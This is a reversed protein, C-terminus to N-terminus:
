ASYRLLPVRINYRDINPLEEPAFETMAALDVVYTRYPQDLMYVTHAASHDWGSQMVKTALTTTTNSVILSRGPVADNGGRSIDQVYLLRGSWRNVTFTKTTAVVSTTTSAADPVFPDGAVTENGQQGDTYVRFRKGQNAEYWWCELGRNRSYPYSAAETYGIGASWMKNRTVHQLGISNKYRRAVRQTRVRGSDAISQLSTVIASDEVELEKLWGDESAYWGYAHEYDSTFNYGDALPSTDDASSDFGLVAAVSAGDLETWALKMPGPNDYTPKIVTKHDETLYMQASGTISLASVVETDMLDALVKLFDDAQADWAMFYDGAPITATMATDYDAMDSLYFKLHWGGTPVTFASLIKPRPISM